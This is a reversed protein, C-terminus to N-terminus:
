LRTRVSAFVQPVTNSIDSLDAETSSQGHHATVVRSGVGACHRLMCRVGVLVLVRAYAGASVAKGAYAGDSVLRSAYAGSSVTRDAYAGDTIIRCAWHM